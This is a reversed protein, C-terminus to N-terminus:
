YCLGVYNSKESKSQLLHVYHEKELLRTIYSLMRYKKNQRKKWRKKPLEYHRYNVFLANFYRIINLSIYFSAGRKLSCLWSHFLLKVEEFTMSGNQILLKFHKLKHREKTVSKQNIRKVIKGTETMFFRTKLFKFPRSLSIIQCKKKNLVIKFEKCKEEFAKAFRRAERKTRMIVYGDDMYRGHCHVGLQDKIWHDIPNPYFVASIQFVHSGLGLGRGRLQLPLGKNMEELFRKYLRNLERNIVVNSVVNYMIEHDINDFYSSFDYFYIVGCLGFRDYFWKLHKSFRDLAFDTGKGELSAGNDYILHPKIVPILCNNSVSAQIAKESIHVSKIDRPKGREVISFRHFGKSRWTGDLLKRSDRSANVFLNAKYSQTSVKWNSQKRAKNFGEVIKRTSFVIEPRSYEEARKFNKMFRKMKRRKYRAEKREASNM